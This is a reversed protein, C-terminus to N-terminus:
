PWRKKNLVSRDSWAFDFFEKMHPILPETHKLTREARHAAHNIVEMTERLGEILRVLHLIAYRSATDILSVRKHLEAVSIPMNTLDGILNMASNGFALEAAVHMDDAAKRQKAAAHQEFLGNAIDAWDTLPDILSRNPAASLGNVNAYRGDADAFAALLSLIRIVNQDESLPVLAKTGYKTALHQANRWLKLLQHGYKRLIKEDPGVCRHEALHDLVILLKMMRELGISLEFFATYFLGKKNGLNANRLATLGTCLCSSALYGEQTLSHWMPSFNM